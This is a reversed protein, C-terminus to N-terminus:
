ATSPVRMGRLQKEDRAPNSKNIEAIFRKQSRDKPIATIRAKPISMPNEQAMYKRPFCWAVTSFSLFFFGSSRLSSLELSSPVIGWPRATNMECNPSFYWRVRSHSPKRSALFTALRDGHKKQLVGDDLLPRQHYLTILLSPSRISCTTNQNRSPQQGNPTLHM